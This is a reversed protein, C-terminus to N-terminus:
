LIFSIVKRPKKPFVLTKASGKGPDFFCGIMVSWQKNINAHVTNVFLEFASIANTCFSVSMHMYVGVSHM